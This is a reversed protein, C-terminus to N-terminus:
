SESASVIRRKIVGGFNDASRPAVTDLPSPTSGRYRSLAKSNRCAVIRGMDQQLFTDAGEVHEVDDEILWLNRRIGAVDDTETGVGANVQMQHLRQTELEVIPLETTGPQIIVFEGGDDDMLCPRLARIM